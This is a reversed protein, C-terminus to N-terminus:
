ENRNDQEWGESNLKQTNRTNARCSTRESANNAFGCVMLASFM